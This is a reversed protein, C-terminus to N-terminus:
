NYKRKWFWNDFRGPMISFGLRATIFREQILNDNTTGREGFEVGFNIMSGSGSFRMPLSVGFSMGIETLITNNIQLPTQRYRLGMKYIGLSLTSNAQNTVDSASQYEVGFTGDFSPNLLDKIVTGEFVESYTSWDQMRLQMGFRFSGYTLSAGAGFSMPLTLMGDENISYKITDELFEALETSRYTYVFEDRKAKMNSALSGVLGFDLARVQYKYKAKITSDKKTASRNTFRKKDKFRYHYYLGGDFMFDSVQTTVESRTDLFTFDAFDVGRTNSYSGFLYYANVGISLSTEHKLKNTDTKAIYPKDFLKRAAGIFVRNIGGSGNFNYTFVGTHPDSTPEIMSYGVTSYPRIGFAAGGKKGIPLGMTFNSLALQNTVQQDSVTNMELIEGKVGVNFIPKYRLLYSYSAPNGINVQNYNVTPINLGGAGFYYANETGFLEGFAYRSYPSHNNIQGFSVSSLLMVALVCTIRIQM